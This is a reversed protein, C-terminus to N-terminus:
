EVEVIFSGGQGGGVCLTALGTHKGRRRLERLLTIVIRTGTTGVPHGLAIAGGNVNLKEDPLEGLGFEKSDFARQNAIVQVAFAENLEVLDIDAMTMGTKKFLKATAYVPGLGMRHPELGAYDFAKVYGLVALGMEKAKSEKMVVVAAAGDTLPCANGVTVTGNVRDFYPKLKALAERSQDKRPGSDTTMMEFSKGAPIPCIEGDFFGEEMAKVARQHSQLAFSDQENRDIGFEKALNEATLGMILGCTPDTLGDVVGMVPKLFGPRFTKLVGLKQMTTKAKMLKEFFATMRKNFMLPINSMSETGGALIIEAEGSMIKAAASSISQMGSACNRHVTFAPTQIPFGARLALVRAINAANSPQAVNGIIVEDVDSYSLGSSTMVAQMPYVGLHDAPISKLQTGAKAFPTRKGDIIALREKM